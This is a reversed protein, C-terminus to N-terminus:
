GARARGVLVGAIRADEDRREVVYLNWYELHKEADHFHSVVLWHTKALKALKARHRRLPPPLKGLAAESWDRGNDGNAEEFSSIALCALFRQSDRRRIVGRAGYSAKCTRALKATREPHGAMEYRPDYALGEYWFSGAIAQAVDEFSSPMGGAHEAMALGWDGLDSTVSALTTQAVATSAASLMALSVMTAALWHRLM